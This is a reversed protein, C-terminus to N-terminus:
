PSYPNFSITCILCKIWGRAPYCTTLLHQSHHEVAGFWHLWSKFGPNSDSKISLVWTWSPLASAKFTRPLTKRNQKTKNICLFATIRYDERGAGNMQTRPCLPLVKLSLSLWGREVGWFSIHFVCLHRHGLSHLYAHVCLSRM